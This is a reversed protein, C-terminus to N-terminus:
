SSQSQYTEYLDVVDNLYLQTDGVLFGFHSLHYTNFFVTCPDIENIYWQTDEMSASNTNDSDFIAVNNVTNELPILPAEETGYHELNGETGYDFYSVRGTRASQTFHEFIKVTTPLFQLLLNGVGRNDISSDAEASILELGATCLNPMITCFMGIMTTVPSQYPFLLTAGSQRMKELVNNMYGASTYLVSNSHAFSVPTVILGAVNIRSEFFEPEIALAFSLATGGLSYAFTSVTDYNTNTSLIHTIDAMIDHRVTTLDFDWYEQDTRPDLSTHRTHSTWRFNNLWVDFGRNALFFAPSDEPGGQAFQNADVFIPHILYVPSGPQSSQSTPSSPIRMLTLIYGDETTVEHEEYPYGYKECKEQLTLFGDGHSQDMLATLPSQQASTLLICGIIVVGMVLTQACTLKM